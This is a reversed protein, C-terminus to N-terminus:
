NLSRHAIQLLSLSNKLQDPLPNFGGNSGLARVKLYAIQRAQSTNPMSGGSM